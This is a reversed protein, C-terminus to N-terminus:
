MLALPMHAAGVPRVCSQVRGCAARWIGRAVRADDVCSGLVLFIRLLADGVRVGIGADLGGLVAVDVGDLDVGVGLAGEVLEIGRRGLDRVDRQLRTLLQDRDRGAVGHAPHDAIRGAALARRCL